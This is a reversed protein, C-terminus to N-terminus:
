EKRQLLAFNVRSGPLGGCHHCPRSSFGEDKDADGSVIDIGEAALQAEAKQMTALQAEAEDPALHYDLGTADGNALWCACDPCVQYEDDIVTIISMM